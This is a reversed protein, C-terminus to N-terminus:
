MSWKLSFPLGIDLDINVVRLVGAKADWISQATQAASGTTLQVETAQPTRLAQQKDPKSSGSDLAAISSPTLESNEKAIAPGATSPVKVPVTLPQPAAVTPTLGVLHVQTIRLKGKSPGANAKVASQVTGSRADAETVAIFWVQVTTNDSVEITDLDSYLLGCSVLRGASSNHAAACSEEFGYPALPGTIPQPNGTTPNLPMTVVLTVPTFRVDRTVAAGQGAPQVPIISGGRYHVAIDGLPVQLTVSQGQHAAIRSYDWASYWAGATFYPDVETTNYNLVPSVLLAEGLMWQKTANRAQKDSPDTFLLPRALTGGKSYTVFLSGYLYSLLQYRLGYAKRASAAVSPWRYFEHNRSDYTKHNRSFPYFAGASAWRNCLEEYEADPLREVSRGKEAIDVFGCIDPGVMNIGWFSPNIIAAISDYLGQWNAANDGTWHGTFRGAGPFTSRLIMYPRKGFLSTFAEYHRMAMTTGFLNHADYELSGDAHRASPSIIMEHIPMDAKVIGRGGYWNHINYPPYELKNSLPAPECKMQCKTRKGIMETLNYDIPTEMTLWKLKEKDEYDPACNLGTCFNSAENMDLWLGDFPVQKYWQALQAKLWKTVNPAALYDPYVSPGPWVQGVYLRDKYDKIWINDKVGEEYAAYDKAVAVGSDQIPVWHLGATHLRKVFDQMKQVPFRVPDFTMTQFRSRQHEIDVWLCELPVDVATYNNVVAELVSINHYGWKGQHLGLAWFPPMVSTGIVQHYQQIVAEPTPGLFLYIDLIGGITRYTLSTANLIFDMGNSNRFFVGHSSGDANVQLYFPHSGYLNVNSQFAATDRNWLTIIKGDRPLLLGTSLMAEGLGYLDADKPVSTTVEIFQDKFLFKHGTSDFLPQRNSKRVVSFAFPQNAAKSAMPVDYLLSDSSLDAQPSTRPIISEPVEWRKHGSATVRVRLREATEPIIDAQLETFSPGYQLLQENDLQLKLRQSLNDTLSLPSADKVVQYTAWGNNQSVGAHSFVM